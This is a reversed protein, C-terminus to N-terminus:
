ITKSIIYWYNKYKRKFFRAANKASKKSKFYAVIASGSGTMRVFTINPLSLLFFKLSYIKPYKKFVVDELDNKSKKLYSTKFFINKKNNYLSKSYKKVKSYIDKTSCDINPKAILVYYNINNDLRLIKSNQFLISNKKELGIPIDFGVKYAIDLIKNNSTNIIKKNIFYKLISAANMSGGGLGSKQPINKKIKIEFKNGKLIKKKELILLLKSVTNNNGIGKSFRGSFSIKHILKNTKRIRIEDFLKVFTILSEVKHYGNSLRNIVNLSLNVKAYSNIKKYYM